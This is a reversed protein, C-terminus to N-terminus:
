KEEKASLIFASKTIDVKVTYNKNILTEIFNFLDKLEFDGVNEIHVKEM